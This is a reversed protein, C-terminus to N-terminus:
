STIHYQHLLKLIIYFNLTNSYPSYKLYRLNYWFPDYQTYIPIPYEIIM